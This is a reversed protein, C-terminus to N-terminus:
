IPSQKRPKSMKITRSKGQSPVALLELSRSQLIMNNDEKEEKNHVQNPIQKPLQIRGEERIYDLFSRNGQVGEGQGWSVNSQTFVAIATFSDRKGSNYKKM